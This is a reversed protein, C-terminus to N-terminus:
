YDLETYVFNTHTISDWDEWYIDGGAKLDANWPWPDYVYLKKDENSSNLLTFLNKSYGAIARAHGPVGSKMPQLLNIQNRAENWTASSDYTANIHNNSLAEYGASVDAPCGSGASYGLEPAIENQTYYYRYYCLIMQCTAVSCYDNVQQAHLIFCHHSGDEDHKYHTCFQLKKEIRTKIVLKAIDIVKVIESIGYIDPGYAKGFVRKAQNAFEAYRKKRAPITRKNISDLYSWSYAGESDEKPPKDPIISFDSIDFILVRTDNDQILQVQLGIKPYSYCVLMTSKISYKRFKKKIIEAIQRKSTELKWKQAGYRISVVPAGISNNASARVTAVQEKGSQLAFDYFLPKGNIDFIEIAKANLSLRTNRSILNPESLSFKAGDILANAYAEERSIFDQDPAKIQKAM